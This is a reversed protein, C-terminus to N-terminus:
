DNWTESKNRSVHETGTIPFLCSWKDCWVEHQELCGGGPGEGDGFKPFMQQPYWPQPKKVNEIVSM